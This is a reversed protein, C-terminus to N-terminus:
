QPQKTLFKGWVEVHNNNSITEHNGVGLGGFIISLWDIGTM